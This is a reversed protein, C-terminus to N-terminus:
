EPKEPLLSILFDREAKALRLCEKCRPTRSYEEYDGHEDKQHNLWDMYPTGRCMIYGSDGVVPCDECFPGTTQCLLCDDSGNDMAGTSAVIRKWKKISGELARLIDAKM